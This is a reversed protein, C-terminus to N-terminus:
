AEKKPAEKQHEKMFQDFNGTWGQVGFHSITVNPYIFLPVGMNRLRNSFCYDEGIFDRLGKLKEFREKFPTMDLHDGNKRMAEEIDRLLLIDPERDIGTAFFEVHKTQLEPNPNTDKYCNMPYFEIYKEL